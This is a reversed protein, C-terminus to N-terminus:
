LHNYLGARKIFSIIKTPVVSWPLFFVSNEVVIAVCCVNGCVWVTVVVFMFFMRWICIDITELCRAVLPLLLISRAGGGCMLMESSIHGRMVRQVRVWSLVFLDGKRMDYKCLNSLLDCGGGSNGRQLVWGCVCWVTMGPNTCLGRQLSPASPWISPYAPQHVLILIIPSWGGVFTLPTPLCCCCKTQLCM